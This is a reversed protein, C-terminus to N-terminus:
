VNCNSLLRRGGYKHEMLMNVFLSLMAGLLRLASMSVMSAYMARSRSEHQAKPAAASPSAEKRPRSPRPESTRRPVASLTSAKMFRSGM